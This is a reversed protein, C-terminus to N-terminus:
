TQGSLLPEGAAGRLEFGNHVPQMRSLSIRTKRGDFDNRGTVSSHRGSQVYAYSDDVALVKVQRRRMRVDLDQWIQGPAVEM